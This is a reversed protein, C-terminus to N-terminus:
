MPSQGIPERIEVIGPLCRSRDSRGTPWTVEVSSAASVGIHTLPSHSSLYSGGGDWSRIQVRSGDDLSLRTGVLDRNSRTGVIRFCVSDGRKASENWLVAAPAHHQVIVLDVDRDGDLDGAALGRGQHHDAFYRGARATENRFRGDGMNHWLLPPNEYPLLEHPERRLHGNTVVLDQWGDHDFDAFTTGWGTFRRSDVAIGAQATVDTFVLRDGAAARGRWLTDHEGVLHSILLDPFRDGDSDGHAIGMNAETEGAANVAIGWSLAVDRFRGDGLNHWLSNNQADNAVLIDMNGDRDFDAALVGMGRGVDRDFGAQPSVDVFRGDGQNNYLVDPQGPFDPPAGYDPKGTLPDRAFPARAPDFEFYNAVFLDLDGDNDFDAFAAGLSWLPCDVAAAAAEDAFTGDGRNRWLSNRGYRTVYADPFGDNDFDAASVGIGYGRPEMGARVSVDQFARGDANRLLADSRLGGSPNASLSVGQSFLLDLRQDGDFDAIAVGGGVVEVPLAVGSEGREYQFPLDVAVFQLPGSSPTASRGKSQLPTGGTRQPPSASIPDSKVAVGNSPSHIQREHHGCGWGFPVAISTLLGALRMRTLM